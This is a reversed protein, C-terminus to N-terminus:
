SARLYEDSGPEKTKKSLTRWPKYVASLLGMRSLFHPSPIVVNFHWEKTFQKIEATSYCIILWLLLLSGMDPSFLTLYPWGPWMKDPDLPRVQKILYGPRVWIRCQIMHTSSPMQGHRRHFHIEWKQELHKSDPWQHPSYIFPLLAHYSNRIMDTNRCWTLTPRQSILITNFVRLTRLWTNSHTYLM